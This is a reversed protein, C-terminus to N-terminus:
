DNVIKVKVILQEKNNSWVFPLVTLKHYTYGYLAKPTTTVIVANDIVKSAKALNVNCMRYLLDIHQLYMNALPDASPNRRAQATLESDLM